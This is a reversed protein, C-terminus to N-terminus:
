DYPIEVNKFNNGDTGVIWLEGNSSNDFIFIDTRLEGDADIVLVDVDQNIVSLTSIFESLKM